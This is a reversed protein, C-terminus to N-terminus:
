FLSGAREVSVASVDESQISKTCNVELGREVSATCFRSPWALSVPTVESIVDTAAISSLPGSDWCNVFQERCIASGSTPGVLFFISM